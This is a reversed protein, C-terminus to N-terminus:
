NLQYCTMWCRVLFDHWWLIFEEQYMDQSLWWQYVDLIYKMDPEDNFLTEVTPGGGTGGLSKAINYRHKVNYFSWETEMIKTRLKESTDDGGENLIQQLFLIYFRFVFDDPVDIKLADGDDNIYHRM